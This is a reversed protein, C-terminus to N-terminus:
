ESIAKCQNKLVFPSACDNKNGFFCVMSFWTDFIVKPNAEFILLTARCTVFATLASFVIAFIAITSWVLISAATHEIDKNNM